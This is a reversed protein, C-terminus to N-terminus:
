LALYGGDVVLETGTIYSAEDSALFLVANAVEERRGVRRMPVMTQVRQELAPQQDRMPPMIGPHVTSASIKTPSNSRSPNPSFACPARPPTTAPTCAPKVSLVPSRHSTSLRASVLKACRPFPTSSAWFFGEPMSTWSAIGADTSLGQAPDLPRRYRRQQGPCQAHWVTTGGRGAETWSDESTVDPRVFMAEGGAAGIDHVIAHGEAELVDAVIVRAGERAFLRAEVEGMGGGAGTILAVKGDLRM